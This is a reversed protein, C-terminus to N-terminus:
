ISIHISRSISFAKQGSMVRRACIASPAARDKLGACVVALSYASVYRKRSAAELERVVALAARTQGTLAYVHGLAARNQVADPSLGIAEQFEHIAEAYQGKGEYARGLWFHAQMATPYMELTQRLQM